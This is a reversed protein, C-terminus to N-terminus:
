ALVKQAKRNRHYFESATEEGLELIGFIEGHLTLANEFCGESYLGLAERLFLDVDTSWSEDGWEREERYDSDWGWGESM